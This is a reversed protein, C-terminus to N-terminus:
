NQNVINIKTYNRDLITITGDLWLKDLKNSTVSFEKLSSCNSLQINQLSDLHNETQFSEIKTCGELELDKLKNLSLISPHIERLNRCGTLALWELNTAKSLDPVEVL